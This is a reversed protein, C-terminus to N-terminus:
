TVHHLGPVLFTEIIHSCSYLEGEVTIGEYASESDPRNNAVSCSYTGGLRETVTLNHLYLGQVPDILTSTANSNPIRKKDRRWVVCGVPGDMSVCTITFAPTFGNLDSNVTLFRDSVYMDLLLHLQLMVYYM